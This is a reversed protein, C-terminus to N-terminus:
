LNIQWWMKEKIDIPEPANPNNVLSNQPIIIRRPYSGGIVSIFSPTLTGVVYDPNLTAWGPQLVTYQTGLKPYGTRNIDFFADWAQCRVAAVWKQTIICKMKSDLSTNDLKYAGALLDTASYGWRSFAAKVGEEYFAEVKADNGGLRAYCEAQLFASEAVSMFYVPDVASLTARSTSLTPLITQTITQGGQPMGKYPVAAVNSVDYFSAIRPDNNALLYTIMTASGRINAQTTLGRRDTEYLPNSANVQDQFGNMRADSTLFGGATLMTQIAAKNAEFDRLLIKLKLTKAFEIWKKMDGGFVFDSAGLPTKATTIETQKAIVADLIALIGANVVKGEDYVPSPYQANVAQSFPITGYLDVLIHYNFAIMVQAPIWYGLESAAEAKDRALYLDPLAGIYYNRWITSFSTTSINYADIFAYQSANNSQAYHQAWMSGALQIDCGLMSASFLIGSPILTQPTVNLPYNPNENIDLDCSVIGVGLLAIVLYKYISKM